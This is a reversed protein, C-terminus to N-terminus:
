RACGEKLDRSLVPSWASDDHPLNGFALSTLADLLAPNIPARRQLFRRRLDATPLASRIPIIATTPLM